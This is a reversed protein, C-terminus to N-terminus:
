RRGILSSSRGIFQFRSPLSRREIKWRMPVKFCVVTRANSNLNTDAYPVCAEWLSFDSLKLWDFDEEIQENFEEECRMPSVASRTYRRNSRRAVLRAEENRRRPYPHNLAPAHCRSLSRWEPVKGMTEAENATTGELWRLIMGTVHGIKTADKLAKALFQISQFLCHM